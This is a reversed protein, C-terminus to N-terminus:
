TKRMMVAQATASSAVPVATAFAGTISSETFTPTPVMLSSQTNYPASLSWNNSTQSIFQNGTGATQMNFALWYM